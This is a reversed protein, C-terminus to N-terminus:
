QSYSHKLKFNEDTRLGYLIYQDEGSVHAYNM